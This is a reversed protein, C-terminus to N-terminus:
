SYFNIDIEGTDATASVARISIRTGSAISVSVRGNGGPFVLILRTESAAAGTGLELTQGSSDFIEIENVAAGLSAVLQVWAGTTVSTSTYDNRVTTVVTRGTSASPTTWLKGNSDTTLAIYDGDAGALATGADNRVALVFKGLDGTTHASDENFTAAETFTAAVKLEGSANTQLPTYDGDAALPGSADSRVALAMVGVDGSTHVSDEAKGLNTAGTGPIVSLVDVDGINNTGAPLSDVINVNLRGNVDTSVAQIDTGDFGGIVKVVAPLGTSGDAATAPETLVDVDGINNTGAPLSGVIDVQLEGNADCSVYQLNVGDYAGMMKGVAPAAAGDAATGAENVAADVRLRGTSDTSLPIYDGDAALAVGADNRVALSMVGVDGSSHVADEAKGLDTAGTGPVMSLVDVQLEGNADTSIAQVNAGDWGSIVKTVAPLGLAGDAATAPETLVDVDGINNTGAPLSGVVDIQLEGDTDCSVFQLNTGDYAGMMKGLAPAAAGDAATAAETITADVRLRGTDDVTLTSFDGDANTMVASASNRVAMALIGTEGGASAADEVVINLLDIGDGIQVSDPDAGDHDLQVDLNLNAANISVDGDLGTLKVPLPRNNAPTVTDETVAQNAGDRVFQIAGQVAAGEGDVVPTKHRLIEFTVAAAPASPLRQALTFSNTDVSDVKIEYNDLVGSTFHIIDGPLVAHATANIILDTSNAEVADTGISQCYQSVLADLGHRQEGVRQVTVYEFRKKDVNSQAANEASYGKIPSSM